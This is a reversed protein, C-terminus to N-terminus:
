AGFRYALAGLFLCLRLWLSSLRDSAQEYIQWKSEEKGKDCGFTFSSSRIEAEGMGKYVMKNSGNRNGYEIAWFGKPIGTFEVIHTTKDPVVEHSAYEWFMKIGVDRIRVVEPIDGKACIKINATFYFNNIALYGGIAFVFFTVAMWIKRGRSKKRPADYM